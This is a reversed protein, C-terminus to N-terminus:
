PKSSDYTMNIIKFSKGDAYKVVVGEFPKGNLETLETSYKDIISQTFVVQKELIPVTPIDLIKCVKEFYFESDPGEYERTKMNYVSFAAFDLPLKAHPNKSHAQIGQGYIEGRLALSVNHAICYAKLKELINYKKEIKTYNNSCEPKMQLSRSCIGSNWESNHTNKSCYYTGSSGDLKLSIDVLEGFPLTELLSNHREEDTKPLATPLNGLADLCQPAPAEYKTVGVIESIDDGIAYPILCNKLTTSDDIVVYPSMVIGFSWIGRIKQARVRKSNKRFMEAWPKDPLVTDPQILVVAAGVYFENKGVICTYGLVHAIELLDANPHPSINTIIEISCLKNM